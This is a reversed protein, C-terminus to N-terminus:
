KNNMSITTPFEGLIRENLFPFLFKRHLVIRVLCPLGCGNDRLKNPM